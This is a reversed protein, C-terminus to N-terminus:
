LRCWLRLRRLQPELLFITLLASFFNRFSQSIGEPISLATTANEPPTSEDKSRETLGATVFIHSKKAACCLQNSYKGPIPQALEKAGPYTWGIDLCEPLVVLKCGLAAAQQIFQIARKLNKKVEGGEVLMQGMALKFKVM